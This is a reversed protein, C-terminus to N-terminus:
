GGAEFQKWKIINGITQHRWRLTEVIEQLTEVLTKFYTIKEESQQIEKDSDYYHDMDGKMVKLGNFPDYDWNRSEIEEQSMKGNYYLWKDKLLSKQNMQSKKLQLKALSLWKLYKSHLMATDVSTQDLKSQNIKSDADWESLV